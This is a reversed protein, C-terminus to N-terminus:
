PKEKVALVAAQDDKWRAMEDLVSVPITGKSLLTLVLTHRMINTVRFENDRILLMDGVTFIKSKKLSLVGAEPMGQPVLRADKAAQALGSLDDATIFRGEDTNM